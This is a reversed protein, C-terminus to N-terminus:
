GRRPETNIILQRYFRLMMNLNDLSIRENSGHIGRIDAYGLAAPLFRFVQDSLEHYHRTDTTALVLRPAVLLSSDPWSQRATQQLLAYAAGDIPAVPSPELGSGTASIDISDDAIAGATHALVDAVTEGPMIRFNIVASAAIPLVNEKPSASLMTVATTTRVSANLAPQQEMQSLLLPEFLWSNSLLLRQSFPLFAMIRQLFDQNHSLSAPMQARELRAVADGIRGAATHQPPMSSHGGAGHATLRLSVYGKEAHGLM